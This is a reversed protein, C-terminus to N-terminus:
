WNRRSAPHRIQPKAIQSEFPPPTKKHTLKYWRATTIRGDNAKTMRLLWTDFSDVDVACIKESNTMLLIKRQGPSMDPLVVEFRYSRGNVNARFAPNGTGGMEFAATRGHVMLPMWRQDANTVNSGIEATELCSMDSFCEKVIKPLIARDNVDLLVGDRNNDRVDLLANPDIAIQPKQAKLSAGHDSIAGTLPTTKLQDLVASQPKLATFNAMAQGKLPNSSDYKAFLDFAKRYVDRAANLRGLKQHCGAEYYMCEAKYPEYGEGLQASMGQLYRIANPFDEKDMAAKAEKFLSQEELIIETMETKGQLPAMSSATATSTDSGSSVSGSSEDAPPDDSKESDAALACPANLALACLTTMAAFRLKFPLFHKSGRMTM